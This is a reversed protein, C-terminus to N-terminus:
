RKGAMRDLAAQVANAYARAADDAALSDLGAETSGGPSAVTRRIEPAEHRLLLEGTLATTRAILQKSVEPDLGAETGAKAVAEAAVTIWAPSCGMVATAADLQSEPLEVLMSIRGLLELAPALAEPDDPPAHCITGRAIEVGVNPMTRLLAAEPMAAGLDRLTTAGLVSVIPGRFRALSEAATALAAPKVALVIMDSSAALTRLNALAEGGTEGALAQARGSGSDTFLMEDPGGALVWGRAIAAAMNGSGAFGVKM